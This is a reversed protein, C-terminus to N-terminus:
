YLLYGSRKAEFHRFERNTPTLLTSDFTSQGPTEGVIRVGLLRDFSDQRMKVRAPYLERIKALLKLGVEVPHFRSRDTVHVYVGRCMEGGYKPHPAAVSDFMPVFRISEFHVGSLALDNLGSALSDGDIWPAGIYEFPRETGRGESVNTAEFLCTGPYVTAATITRMNPSPPLWPLETDDYWMSRKWGGMPIVTLDLHLGTGLWQEGVIMKALEGLTMGHRIPIPFMGIFSRLTTDLIPGEIDVGNIPNPRDLVIFQKGNEAAAAMANAMTSAYTYFRAGVDQLDFVLADVNKLMGPTPKQTRGFLSYVPLHTKPDTENEVREGAPREGRIGHEPSFLTTVHIGLRLLTDILHTDGPLISTQNCIVGVNKGALLLLNKEILVEAGVRVRQAHVPTGPAILLSLLIAVLATSAANRVDGKACRM